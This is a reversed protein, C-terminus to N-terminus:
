VQQFFGALTIVEQGLPKLALYINQILLILGYISPLVALGAFVFLPVLWRDKKEKFIRHRLVSLGFNSRLGARILTPLRSM